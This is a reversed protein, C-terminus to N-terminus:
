FLISAAEGGEDEMRMEAEMNMRNVKYERSM